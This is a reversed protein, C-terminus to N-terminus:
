THATLDIDRRDDVISASFDEANALVRIDLRMRKLGLVCLFHSTFFRNIKM